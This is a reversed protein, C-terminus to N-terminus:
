SLSPLPHPDRVEITRAPRRAVHDHRREDIGPHRERCQLRLKPLEPEFAPREDRALNTLAGEPRGLDIHLDVTIGVAVMAREAVDEVDQLATRELRAHLL